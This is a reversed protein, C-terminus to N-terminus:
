KDFCDTYQQPCGSSSTTWQVFGPSYLCLTRRTATVKGEEPAKRLVRGHAESPVRSSLEESRITM